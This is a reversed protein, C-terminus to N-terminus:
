MLKPEASEKLGVVPSQGVEIDPAPDEGLLDSQCSHLDSLTPFTSHCSRQETLEITGANIDVTNAPDNDPKQYFSTTQHHNLTWQPFM